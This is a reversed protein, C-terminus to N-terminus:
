ELGCVSKSPEEPIERCGALRRYQARITIDGVFPLWAGESGGSHFRFEEFRTTGDAYELRTTVYAYAQWDTYTSVDVKVPEVKVVKARANPPYTGDKEIQKSLADFLVVDPRNALFLNSPQDTRPDYTYIGTVANFRSIRVLLYGVIAVFLCGVLALVLIRKKM